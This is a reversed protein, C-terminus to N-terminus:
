PVIMADLRSGSAGGLWIRHTASTFDRDHALFINPVFRQPNRDFLPFWSGQVHVMIRHAKRFTHHVDPLTVRVQTVRGPDFAAPTSFSRRFRGRMIEGRVLQQYGAMRVTSDRQHPNNPEDDPYVDILKVVIDADTGSTSFAIHATVPGALTVDEDLVEGRFVAVDSRRSICRQDDSMYLYLAGDEITPGTCRSPVPTRPDSVYQVYSRPATVQAMSITGNEGLFLPRRMASPSPWRAFSMWTKRGTDFMLAGTPATASDRKLHKRFFPAEVDRQFTTALSDGFYLNGHTTHVADRAQWDRHGFPGMVLTVNGGSDGTTLARYAALTGYLNEADFWGGVVLVPHTIGRLRMDMARAKWFADYNPHAAIARWWLNDRYFRQTINALSGLSRQFLFEDATGLASIRQFEPLWWHSATPAARPTGFIPFTFFHAQLLAGNHHFDEHFFDMVPAQLSTAAIAPHRSLAAAAAYYGGYSVGFLGLRGDHGDVHALLWDITDSADTSEDTARGSQMRASDSLLPRVNEFTGDSMYRGRVEQRVFIYKDRLMIADPGLMAPYDAGGYPAVSFPTRELLIPYRRAGGADRPVYIVTFLAAGDRMEIRAVQKRYAQRIYLSDPLTRAASRLTPPNLAAFRAVCYLVFAAPWVFRRMATM